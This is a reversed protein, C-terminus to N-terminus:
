HIASEGALNVARANPDVMVRALTARDLLLTVDVPRMSGGAAQTYNNTTYNNTLPQVVARGGNMSLLEPGAEGVLATGSSLVGGTALGPMNYNVGGRGSGRVPAVNVDQIAAEEKAQKFKNLMFIVAAIGAAVTALILIVGSASIGFATMAGSAIALVPALTSTISVVSAILSAVPSIVASFAVVALALKAWGPLSSLIQQIVPLVNDLVQRFAETTNATLAQVDADARTFGLALNEVSAKLTMISGNITTEAELATTGAVGMSQQVEHIAMVIDSFSNIDFQMGTLRSAEALLQQMGEKTGAFGLKLNDLMTYNQKAFGQYASQISSIDTGFKNANDSMDVIAINALEAAARTNGGLSKLLAASFSTVTEMYANASLGASKYAEDAYKQVVDANEKFFTEIGGLNQEYDAYQKIAAVAFGGAAALLGQAVQSLKATKDAVGQAADGVSQLTAVSKATGQDFDDAAKTAKKLYDETSIIERQIAEWAETAAETSSYQSKDFNAQAQQLTKLKTNYDEVAGNLLRQKQALLETNGPDLKLLREVDRLQNQTGSIERNVNSFAKSLGATDGGLEITIGRVKTTNRAM